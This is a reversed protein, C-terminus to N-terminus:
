AKLLSYFTNWMAQRVAEPSGRKEGAMANLILGDCTAMLVTTISAIDLHPKLEGNQQGEQLLDFLVKYLLDNLNDILSRLSPVRPGELFFELWLRCYVADRKILMIIFQDLVKELKTVVSDQPQYAETIAKLRRGTYEEFVAAFLEEKSGFYIYIKGKSM